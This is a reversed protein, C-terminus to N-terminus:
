LEFLKMETSSTSYVFRHGMEGVQNVELHGPWRGGGQQTRSLRPRTFGSQCLGQKLGVGVKRPLDPWSWRM